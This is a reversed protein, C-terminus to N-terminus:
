LTKCGDGTDLELVPTKWPLKRKFFLPYNLLSHSHPLVFTLISTKVPSYCPILLSINQISLAMQNLYSQHPAQSLPTHPHQLCTGHRTIMTRLFTYSYRAAKVNDNIHFYKRSSSLTPSLKESILPAQSLESSCLCVILIEM